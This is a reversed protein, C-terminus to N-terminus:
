NQLLKDGNPLGKVHKVLVWKIGGNDRFIYKLTEYIKSTLGFM